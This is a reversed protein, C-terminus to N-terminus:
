GNVGPINRREKIKDELTAKGAKKKRKNEAMKQVM